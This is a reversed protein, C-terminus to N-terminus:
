GFIFDTPESYKDELETELQQIEELAETFLEVGNITVGGLLSVSGFKKTNAGWQRKFLATTYQKLWKDNWIGTFVDPDLIRYLKLGLHKGAYMDKDFIKLRNDHRIYEFRIEPSTLDRVSQYDTVTLFYDVQNFPQFPSLQSLAVQYQFSFMDTQAFLADTPMIQIVSLINEPLSIYGNDVDQQTMVYSVWDLETGDYHAENFVELAEDIRDELQSDDVNINIVPKGLNRLCYEKLESRNTPKM